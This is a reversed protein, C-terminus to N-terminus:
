LWQEIMPKQATSATPVELVPNAEANTNETTKNIEPPTQEVYYKGGV